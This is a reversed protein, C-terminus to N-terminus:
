LDVNMGFHMLLYRQGINVLLYKGHRISSEFKNGIVVKKLYSEDINLIRNDIVKVAIITQNLSTKDLYQKFTEVEPLEPM